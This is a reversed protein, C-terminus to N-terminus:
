GFLLQAHAEAPERVLLEPLMGLRKELEGALIETGMVLSGPALERGAFARYLVDHPRDAVRELSGVRLKLLELLSSALRLSRKLSLELRHRCALALQAGFRTVEHVRQPPGLHATLPSFNRQTPEDLERAHDLVAIKRHLTVARRLVARYPGVHQDPKRLVPQEDDVHLSRQVRVELRHLGLAFGLAAGREGAM